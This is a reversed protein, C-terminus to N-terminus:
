KYAIRINLLIKFNIKIIKMETKTVQNHVYTM